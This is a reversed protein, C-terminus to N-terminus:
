SSAGPAVSLASNCGSPGGCSCLLPRDSRRYVIDWTVVGQDAVVREDEVEFWWPDVVRGTAAGDMVLHNPVIDEIIKIGYESAKSCLEILDARTGMANEYFRYDCPGYFYYWPQGAPNPAQMPSLQVAAFGSAAINPLEATIDKLPWCFCHLIVGEQIKDPIYRQQTTAAASLISAILSFVLIEVPKKM